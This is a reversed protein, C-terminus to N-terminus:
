DIEALTKQQMNLVQWVASSCKVSPFVATADLNSESSAENLRRFTTTSIIVRRPCLKHWTKTQLFVCVQLHKFGFKHVNLRRIYIRCLYCVFAFMHIHRVVQCPSPNDAFIAM